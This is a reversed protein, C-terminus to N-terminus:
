HRDSKTEIAVVELLLKTAADVLPGALQDHQMRAMAGEGFYLGDSVLFTIRINEPKPPPLRPQKAPGIEDVVLQSAKFLNQVMPQLGPVNEFVGMKGTQNIYRM